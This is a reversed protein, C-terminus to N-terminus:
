NRDFDECVLLGPVTLSTGYVLEAPSCDLKTRWATRIGLMVLPLQDMWDRDKSRAMISVKLQRHLREVLGIAQPHYATTSNTKIGM